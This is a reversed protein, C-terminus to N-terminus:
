RLRLGGKGMVSESFEVFKRNHEPFSSLWPTSIPFTAPEMEIVSAQAKARAGCRECCPVPPAVGMWHEPVSVTGGCLSCTGIPTNM